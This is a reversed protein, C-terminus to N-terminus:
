NGYKRLVDKGNENIAYHIQLKNNADLGYEIDDILGNEKLSLFHDLFNNYTFQGERGYQDKLEDMTDEITTRPVTNIYTLVMFRIPLKHTM